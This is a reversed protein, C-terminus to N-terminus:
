PSARVLIRLHVVGVGSTFSGALRQHGQLFVRGHHIIDFAVLVEVVLGVPLSLGAFDNLLVDDSAPDLVHLLALGGVQLLTFGAQGLQEGGLVADIFLFKVVVQLRGLLHALLHELPQLGQLLLPLLLPRVLHVSPLVHLKLLFVVSQALFVGLKVVVARGNLAFLLENVLAPGDLGFHHLLLDVSLKPLEVGLLLELALHSFCTLLLLLNAVRHRHQVPLLLRPIHLAVRLLIQDRVLLAHELSLPLDLLLFFLLGGVLLEQEVALAVKLEDRVVCGLLLQTLLGVLQVTLAVPDEEVLGEGLLLGQLLYLFLLAHGPPALNLLELLVVVLLPVVLRRVSLVDFLKRGLLVGLLPIRPLLLPTTFVLGADVEELVHVLVTLSIDKQLLLQLSLGGPELVVLLLLDVRLHLALVLLVLLLRQGRCQVLLSVLRVDEALHALPVPGHAAVQLVAHVFFASGLQSLDLELAADLRFLRAVVLHKAGPLVSDLAM